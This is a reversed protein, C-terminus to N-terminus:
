EIPEAPRPPSEPDRGAVSAIYAALDDADQGTVLNPPMIPETRQEPKEIWYRVVGEFSSEDFGQERAGRFADDLNPGVTSTTGADALTHCGGCAAFQQKGNALDAGSSGGCGAVTAAAAGLMLLGAFVTNRRVRSVLREM